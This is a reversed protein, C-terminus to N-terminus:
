GVAVAARGIGHYEFGLRAMTAPDLRNRGDFVLPSLMREKVKSLDAQAFQPWDTAIVIPVPPPNKTQWGFPSYGDRDM